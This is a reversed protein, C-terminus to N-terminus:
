KGLKEVDKEIDTKTDLPKPDLKGERREEIVESMILIRPVSTSFEADV